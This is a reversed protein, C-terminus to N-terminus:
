GRTWNWLAQDFGVEDQWQMTEVIGDELRTQAEWGLRQRAKDPQSYWDQLDWKRNPMSGFQPPEKVGAVEGVMHALESITTKRGTGINFSQGKEEPALLAARIFAQCVDRVHIFDRAVDAQTLPPFCGKRAQSLLQPILRDPEEWPGYASYIRLNVIPLAEIAGYYGVAYGSAVKSIAYHSNPALESDEAPGAANLGYESSSGAQVLAAFGQRKLIEVIDLLANFNTRYIKRYESQKSYAGYAALHFVTRPRVEELLQTLLSFDEIDCARLQHQPIRNALFRWNNHPSQSVGYVDSRRALLMKLLNIGLFGGAGLVLIPGQLREIM